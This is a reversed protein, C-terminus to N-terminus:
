RDGGLNVHFIGARAEDQGEAKIKELTGDVQENLASQHALLDAGFPHVGEARGEGIAQEGDDGEGQEVAELAARLRCRFHRLRQRPEHDPTLNSESNSTLKPQNSVASQQGSNMGRSSLIEAALIAVTCYPMRSMNRASASRRHFKCTTLPSLYSAWASRLRMRATGMRAGRPLIRSRSPRMM